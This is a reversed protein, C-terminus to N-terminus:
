TNYKKSRRRAIWARPGKMASPRQFTTLVSGDKQTKINTIWTFGLEDMQKGTWTQRAARAQAAPGASGADNALARTYSEHNDSHYKASGDSVWDAVFTDVPRKNTADFHELSRRLLRGAHLDTNRQGASDKARISAKMIVSGFKAIRTALFKTHNEPDPTHHEILVQHPEAAAHLTRGSPMTIESPKQGAFIPELAAMAEDAAISKPSTESAAM